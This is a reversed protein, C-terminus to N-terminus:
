LLNRPAPPSPDGASRSDGAHSPDSAVRQRAAGSRRYYWVPRPGAPRAGEIGPSM